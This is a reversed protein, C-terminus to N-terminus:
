SWPTASVAAGDSLCSGVKGTLPVVVSERTTKPRFPVAEELDKLPGFQILQSLPPM